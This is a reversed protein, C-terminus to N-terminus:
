ADSGTCAQKGRMSMRVATSMVSSMHTYLRCEPQHQMHNIALFAVYNIGPGQVFIPLVHMVVQMNLNLRQTSTVHAENSSQLRIFFSIQMRQSTSQKLM